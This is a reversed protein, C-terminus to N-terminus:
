NVKGAAETLFAEYEKVLAELDYGNEKIKEQQCKRDACKDPWEMAAEAWAKAGAELSCKKVLNDTVIVNDTIVDSMIIPLGAIQAEILTLPLGEFVSPFILARFASAFYDADTRMGTLIVKEKLGLEAIKSEIATRMEGEGLCILVANEDKKAIERFVDLLFLHNKVPLLNGIHGYINKGQLKFEDIIKMRKEESFSFKQINIANKLIKFDSNGYMWKGADQSCAIRIDTNAVLFPRSIYHVLKQPDTTSHSHCVAVAGEKRCAWLQPAVLANATHRIVVDYQEERVIRRIERICKIPNRVLRPLVYIKGGLEKIRNDYGNEKVVHETFDFQFRERDINAYVNMVFNEMGGPYMAGVM